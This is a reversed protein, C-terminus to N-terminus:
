KSVGEDPKYDPVLEGKDEEPETPEIPAAESVPEERPAMLIEGVKGGIGGVVIGIITNVVLAIVIPLAMTELLVGVDFGGSFGTMLGTIMADAIDGIVPATIVTVLDVGPPPNMVLTQLQTVITPNNMITFFSWGSVGIMLIVGVVGTIIAVAIGGRVSGAILGGVFMAGVLISLHLIDTYPGILAYTETLIVI